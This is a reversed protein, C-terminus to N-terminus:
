VLRDLNVGQTGKESVASTRTYNETAEAARESLLAPRPPFLMDARAAAAARAEEGILMDVAARSAKWMNPLLEKIQTDMAELAPNNAERAQQAQEERQRQAEPVQQQFQPGPGARQAADPQETDAPPRATPEQATSPERAETADDRGRVSAASGQPIDGTREPAAANNFNNVRLAEGTPNVPPLSSPAYVVQARSGEGAPAVPAVVGQNEPTVLDSAKAPTAPQVRSVTPAQPPVPSVAVSSITLM